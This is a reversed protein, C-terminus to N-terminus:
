HPPASQRSIWRLSPPHFYPHSHLGEFLRPRRFSQDRKEL